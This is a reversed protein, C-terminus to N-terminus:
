IKRTRDDYQPLEEIYIYLGPLDAWFKECLESCVLADDKWYHLSTMVDKLLKQLNDTDPKSTRWEGNQHSGKPFLWKTVLRVASTYPTAPAHGSLYATLKQRADKLEPGEYFHARGNVTTIKKEQHTVTPPVMSIFFETTM